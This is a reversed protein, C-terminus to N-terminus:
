PEWRVTLQPSQGNAIKQISGASLGTADQIERYTYGHARAYVITDYLQDAATQAAQAHNELLAILPHIM